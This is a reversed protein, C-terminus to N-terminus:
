IMRYIRECTSKLCLGCLVRYCLVCTLKMYCKLSRVHVIWANVYPYMPLSNNAMKFWWNFFRYKVRVYIYRHKYLLWAVLIVDLIPFYAYTECLIIMMLVGWINILTGELGHDGCIYRCYILCGWWLHVMGCLRM